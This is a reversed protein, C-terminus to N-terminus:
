HSVPLSRDEGDENGDVRRFLAPGEPPLLGAMGGMRISEGDKQYGSREQGERGRGQSVELSEGRVGPGSGCVNEKTQTVWATPFESGQMGDREIVPPSKFSNSNQWRVKLYHYLQDDKPLFTRAELSFDESPLDDKFRLGSLWGQAFKIFQEEKGAVEKKYSALGAMITELQHKSRAKVFAKLAEAKGKKRPYEPWFSEHFETEFQVLSIDKKIDREKKKYPYPEPITEIPNDNPNLSFSGNAKELDKIKISLPRGGLAGNARNKEIIEQTKKWIKQLNKQSINGDECTLFAALRQRIRLWKAKTLGLIRAIDRDDDPVSGNRRWMAGLLLLYAGHEETTLHTTDAIYADWFMPMSPAQSM